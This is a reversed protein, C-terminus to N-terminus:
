KEALALYYLWAAPASERPLLPTFHPLWRPEEPAKLLRFNVTQLPKNGKKLNCRICSTVVNTWSTKGGKSRPVIHDYTLQHSPFPRHCYQCTYDDRFFLNQRSFKVKKPIPKLYRTLKIVAPLKVTLSPSHIIRAYEELVEVKGLLTLTIAKKWSIIRIPEFAASLLLTNEM